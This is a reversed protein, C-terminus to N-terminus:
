RHGRAKKSYERTVSPPGDDRDLEGRLLTPLGLMEDISVHMWARLKILTVVSLGRVSATEGRYMASVQPQSVGIAKAAVKQWGRDEVNMTQHVHVRFRDCVSRVLKPDLRRASNMCKILGPGAIV